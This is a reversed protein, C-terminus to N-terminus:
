VHAKLMMTMCAGGKAGNSVTLIGGHLDMITRAVTLGLGTGTGTPKTTFFPDFIKDLKDAPIGPGNDEIETVVVHDGARFVESRADGINAGFGTLQRQSTRVTVRGGSDAVADAANTLLNVLVQAIKARDISVPPLHPALEQV